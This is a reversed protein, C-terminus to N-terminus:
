CKCIRFKRNIDQSFNLSPSSFTRLIQKQPLPLINDREPIWLVETRWQSIEVSIESTKMFDMHKLYM